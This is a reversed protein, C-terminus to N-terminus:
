FAVGDNEQCRRKCIEASSSDKGYRQNCNQMCGKVKIAACMSRAKECDNLCQNMPKGEKTCQNMCNRHVENCDSSGFGFQKSKDEGCGSLLWVLSGFFLLLIFNRM